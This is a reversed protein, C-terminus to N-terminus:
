WGCHRSCSPRRGDHLLAPPRPPPSFRPVVEGEGLKALIANIKDVYTKMRSNIIKSSSYENSDKLQKIRTTLLQILVDKDDGSFTDLQHKGFALYKGFLYEIDQLSRKYLNPHFTKQFEVYSKCGMKLSTQDDELFYCDGGIDVVKAYPGTEYNSESENVVNENLNPEEDHEAM